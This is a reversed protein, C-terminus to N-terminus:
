EGVAPPNPAFNPRHLDPRDCCTDFGGHCPSEVEGSTPCFYSAAPEPCPRAADATNPRSDTRAQNRRKQQAAINLLLRAFEQLQEPTVERKVFRRALDADSFHANITLPSDHDECDDHDVNLRFGFSLDWGISEGDLDSSDHPQGEAPKLTWTPPWTNDSTPV